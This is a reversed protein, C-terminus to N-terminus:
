LKQACAIADTDLYVSKYKAYEVENRIGKTKKTDELHKSLTDHTSHKIIHM